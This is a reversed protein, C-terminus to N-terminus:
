RKRYCLGNWECWQYYNWLFSGRTPTIVDLLYLVDLVLWVSLILSAGGMIFSGIDSNEIRKAAAVGFVFIFVIRILYFM